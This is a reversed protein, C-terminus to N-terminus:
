VFRFIIFLGVKLNDHSVRKKVIFLRTTLLFVISGIVFIMIGTGENLHMAILKDRLKTLIDGLLNKGRWTMENWALIDEKNLGIGLLTDLPSAKVLTKPFTKFM